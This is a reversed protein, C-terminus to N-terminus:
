APYDAAEFGTARAHCFIGDDAPKTCEIKERADPSCWKLMMMNCGDGRKLHKAERVRGEKV